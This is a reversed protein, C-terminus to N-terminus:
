SLSLPRVKRMPWMPSWLSSPSSSSSSAISATRSETRTCEQPSAVAGVTTTRGPEVRLEREFWVPGQGLVDVGLLLEYEGPLVPEFRQSASALGHFGQRLPALGPDAPRLVLEYAGREPDPPLEWSVQVAGPVPVRFALEPEHAEHLVQFTAGGLALEIQHPGDALGALEFRGTAVPRGEASEDTGPRAAGVRGGAVARGQEDVVSVLVDRGRELALELEDAPVAGYEASFPRYGRKEVRLAFGGSALVHGRFRGNADSTMSLHRTYGESAIPPLAIRAGAVPGGRENVVRGALPALEAPLAIRLTRRETRGLGPLTEEHLVRGERAIVRLTLPVFPRLGDVSLSGELGTQFRAVFGGASQREGGSAFRGERAPALFSPPSLGPEGLFLPGAALLEVDLAPVPTGHADRLEVCLECAPELVVELVARDAPVALAVHAFGRAGVRLSTASVDPLWCEGRGDTVAGELNARAGAIPRGQPDRVRLLLDRGPVLALDGLWGGPGLEERAVCRSGQGREGPAGWYELTLERWPAGPFLEFVGDAGARAGLDMNTGNAWTIRGQVVGRAPTEGDAEVLRGSVGPFREVELCLGRAPRPVHFRLRQDPDSFALTGPLAHGRALRLTYGQEPRLGHFSFSGDPETRGRVFDALVLAVPDDGDHLVEDLRGDAPFLELEIPRPPDGGVVAIRGALVEGEPLVLESEGAQLEIVTRYSLAAQREIVIERRGEEAPLDLWGGADTRRTALEEGVRPLLVVLREANARGDWELVRIRARLSERSRDSGAALSKRSSAPALGPEARAGAAVVLGPGNGPLLSDLAVDAEGARSDAGEPAVILVASLLGAVVIGAATWAGPLGAGAAVTAAAGLAPPSGALRVLATALMGKGGFARALRVRLEDLGRATRWRVTGEPIGAARAIEAAALGEYYRLLLTTRFPERLACVERALREETDIREVLEDTAPLEEGRAACRERERRRAEGRRRLCLIRRVVTALWPRLAGSPRRELAALWTEQALDEAAGPERVLGRALGSLWARHHLLREIPEPCSPDEV